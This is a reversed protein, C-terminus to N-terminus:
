IISIYQRVMEEFARMMENNAQDCARQVKETAEYIAKICEEKQETTIEPIARISDVGRSYTDLFSVLASENERQLVERLQSYMVIM